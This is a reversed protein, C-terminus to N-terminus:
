HLLADMIVEEKDFWKELELEGNGQFTMEERDLSMLRAYELFLRFLFKLGVRLLADLLQVCRYFYALIDEKRWYTKSWERGQLAIKRALEEHGGEGYADGRFFILSDYLDSLDVQIPIYHV